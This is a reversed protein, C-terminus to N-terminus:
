KFIPNDCSTRVMVASDPWFGLQEGTKFLLTNKSFLELTVTCDADLFFRGVAINGLTPALLCAQPLPTMSLAEKMICLWLSQQMFYLIAVINKNLRHVEIIKEWNM